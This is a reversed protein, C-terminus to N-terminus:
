ISWFLSKAIAGARQRASWRAKVRVYMKILWSITGASLARTCDVSSFFSRNSKPFEFLEFRSFTVHSRDTILPFRTYPLNVQSTSEWNTTFSKKRLNRHMHINLTTLFTSTVYRVTYERHLVFTDDLHQSTFLSM